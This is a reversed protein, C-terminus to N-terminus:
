RSSKVMMHFNETFTKNPFISEVGQGAHNSSERIILSLSCKDNYLCLVVTEPSIRAIDTTVSTNKM